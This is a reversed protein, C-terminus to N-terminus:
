IDIVIPEGAKFYERGDGAISANVFITGDSTEMGHSPHMHGFIHLKPSISRVKELLDPCGASEGRGNRDLIGKPPSHTILVDTADPILEWKVALEPGRELMFAWEYYRITWPSGHFRLGDIHTDSDELYIFGKVLSRAKDPEIEFLWDHNGAIFIKHNHPQSAFWDCFEAVQAETGQATADGAHILVDGEPVELVPHLDHTDSICVIRM